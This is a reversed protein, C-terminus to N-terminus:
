TDSINDYYIYTTDDYCVKFLYSLYVCSFKRSFLFSFNSTESGFRESILNRSKGPSTNEARASSSPKTRLVWALISGVGQGDLWLPIVDGVAVHSSLWPCFFVNSILGYGKREQKDGLYGILMGIYVRYLKLLGVTGLVKLM